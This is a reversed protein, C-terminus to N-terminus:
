MFIQGLILHLKKINFYIVIFMSNIMAIIFLCAIWSHLFLLLNYFMIQIDNMHNFVKRTTCLQVETYIAPQSWMIYNHIM